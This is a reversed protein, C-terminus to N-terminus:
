NGRVASFLISSENTPDRDSSCFEGDKGAHPPSSKTLHSFHGVIHHCLYPLTSSVIFNPVYIVFLLFGFSIHPFCFSHM